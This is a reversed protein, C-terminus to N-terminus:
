VPADETNGMTTDAAGFCRPGDGESSATMAAEGVGSDRQLRARLDMWAHATIELREYWNDYAAQNRLSPDNAYSTTGASEQLEAWRSEEPCAPDECINLLKEDLLGIMETANSYSSQKFWDERIAKSMAQDNLM